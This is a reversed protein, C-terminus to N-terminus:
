PGIRQKIFQVACGIGDEARIKEGLKSASRRISEDTVAANIANALKKSEKAASGQWRAPDIFLFLPVSPRFRMFQTRIRFFVSICGEFFHIIYPSLAIASRNYVM